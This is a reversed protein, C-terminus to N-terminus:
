VSWAGLSFGSTGIWICISRVAAVVLQAFLTFILAAVVREFVDRKPYPTLAHFAAAALFGPLLKMFLDLLDSSPLEMNSLSDEADSLNHGM